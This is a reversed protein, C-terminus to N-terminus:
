SKAGKGPPNKCTVFHNLHLEGADPAAAKPSSLVEYTGAELDVRINGDDTPLADIPAPRNTSSSWLWIIPADCGPRNCLDAQELDSM